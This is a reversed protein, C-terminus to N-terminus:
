VNRRIRALYLGINVALHLGTLCVCGTLFLPAGMPYVLAVLGLAAVVSDAQDVLFFLAGVAGAGTKGPTIALRRKLFSNPLEGLAYGLGLLASVAAYGGAQAPPGAPLAFGRGIAGYPLGAAGSREGWEGLLLGHLAGLATSVLLMFLVGRWTKNPGFIPVGRFTRGGDIPRALRPWWDKKVAVMHLIGTLTVPGALWFSQAVLAPLDSM